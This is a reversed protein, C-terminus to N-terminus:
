GDQDARLVLHCGLGLRSAVLATARCHNSSAAVPSSRQWSTISPMRPLLNSSSRTAPSYSARLIMGSSGYVNAEAGDSTARPFGLPTPVQALKLRSPYDILGRWCVKVHGQAIGLNIIKQFKLEVNGGVALVLYNDDLGSIKGLM